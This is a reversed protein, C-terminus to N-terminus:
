DSKSKEIEIISYAKCRPCRIVYVNKELEKVVDGLVLLSENGDM